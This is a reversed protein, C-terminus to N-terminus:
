LLGRLYWPEQWLGNNILEKSCKGIGQAWAGALPWTGSGDDKHKNTTNWHCNRATINELALVSRTYGSVTLDEIDVMPRTTGQRINFLQRILSHRM